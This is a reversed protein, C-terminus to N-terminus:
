LHGMAAANQRLRDNYDTAARYSALYHELDLSSMSGFLRKSEPVAATAEGELDKAEQRRNAVIRMLLRGTYGRLLPWDITRIGETLIESNIVKQM